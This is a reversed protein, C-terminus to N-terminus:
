SRSKRTPRSGTTNSSYATQNAEVAGDLTTTTVQASGQASVAFGMNTGPALTQFRVAFPGLVNPYLQLGSDFKPSGARQVFIRDPDFNFTTTGLSNDIREIGFIM